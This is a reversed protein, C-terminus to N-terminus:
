WTSPFMRHKLLLDVQGAAAKVDGCPFFYGFRGRQAQYYAWGGGPVARVSVVVGVDEAVGSAYVWLLPVPMPFQEPEYLKVCRWGHAKVAVALVELFRVATRRGRYTRWRLLYPQM